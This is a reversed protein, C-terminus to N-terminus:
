IDSPVKSAESRREGISSVVKEGIRSRGVLGDVIGGDIRASVVVGRGRVEEKGRVDPSLDDWSLCLSGM